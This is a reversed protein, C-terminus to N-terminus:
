TKVHIDFHSISRESIRQGNNNTSQSPAQSWRRTTTTSRKTPRTTTYRQTTTYSNQSPPLQNPFFFGGNGFNQPNQFQTQYQPYQPQQQQQQPYYWNGFNQCYSIQIVEVFFTFLVFYMKKFIECDFQKFISQVTRHELHFQSVKLIEITERM